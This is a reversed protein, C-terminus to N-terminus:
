AADRDRRGALCGDLIRLMQDMVRISGIGSAVIYVVIATTKTM